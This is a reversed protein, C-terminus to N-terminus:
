VRGGIRVSQYFMEPRPFVRRAPLALPELGPIKFYSLSPTHNKLLSEATLLAYRSDSLTTVPSVWFIAFCGFFILLRVRGRLQSGALCRSSHTRMNM